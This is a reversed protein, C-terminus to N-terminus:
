YRMKIIKILVCLPSITGHEQISEMMDDMRKGEYIVFPHNPYPVLYNIHSSMENM